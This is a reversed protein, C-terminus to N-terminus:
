KKAQKPDVKSGPGIRSQGGTVITEGARLGSTVITLGDTSSGVTVPRAEVTKDAKMVYVFPGNQSTQIAPAAVTLAQKHVGALIRASVLTGPWLAQNNNAFVAKVKVQGNTPDVRSDITELTGRALEHTGFHDSVIVEANRSTSRIVPIADQPLQFVVSIPAVQTVTVIGTTDSARVSAGLNVQRLGARGTIPSRITTWDLNLKAADLQAQDAAVLAAQADAQAKLTDYNQGTGAGLSSLKQARVLDLRTNALQAADRRRNAAAQDYAAKLARPDIQALAQGEKVLDGEHFVISAIQGDVRPKVDVTELPQVAGVGTKWEDIDRITVPGVTVPVAEEKHTKGGGGQHNAFYLAVALLAGGGLLIASQRVRHHPRPTEEIM